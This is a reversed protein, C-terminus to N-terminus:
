TGFPAINHMIGRNFWYFSVSPNIEIAKSYFEIANKYDKNNFFSTGINNYTVDKSLQEPLKEIIRIATVDMCYPGYSNLKNGQIEYGEQKRGSNTIVIANAGHKIAEKNYAKTFDDYDSIDSCDSMYGIIEYKYDQPFSQLVSPQGNFVPFDKVLRFHPSVSSFSLFTFFLVELMINQLKM